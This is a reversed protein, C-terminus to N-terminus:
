VFSPFFFHDLWGYPLLCVFQLRYAGPLARTGQSLVLTIIALSCAFYSTALMAVLSPVTQCAEVVPASGIPNLGGPPNVIVLCLAQNFLLAYIKSSSGREHFTRGALM